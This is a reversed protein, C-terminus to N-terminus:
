PSSHLSPFRARTPQRTRLTTRLHTAAAHLVDTSESLSSQWSRQVVGLRGQVYVRVCWGAPTYAVGQEGLSPHRWGRSTAAGEASCRAGRASSVPGDCVRAAGVVRQQRPHGGVTPRIPLPLALALAVRVVAYLGGICTPHTHSCRRTHKHQHMHPYTHHNHHHHIYLRLSYGHKCPLAGNKYHNPKRWADKMRRKLSDIRARPHKRGRAHATQTHSWRCAASRRAEEGKPGCADRHAAGGGGGGVCVCASSSRDWACPTAAGAGGIGVGHGQGRGEV